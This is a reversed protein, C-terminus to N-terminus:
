LYSILLIYLPPQSCNVALQIPSSEPRHKSLLINKQCDITKYNMLLSKIFSLLKQNCYSKKELM